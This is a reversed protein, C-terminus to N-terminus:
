KAAAEPAAGITQKAKLAQNADYDKKFDYLPLIIVVLGGIFCWAMFAFIWITFGTSGLIFSGVYMVAPFLGCLFIFLFMAMVVSKLYSQQLYAELQAATSGEEIAPPMDDVLPLQVSLHKFQFNTDPDALSGGIAVLGSFCMSMLNSYLFPNDNNLATIWEGFTSSLGVEYEVMAAVLWTIIGLILGSIAGITCWKGNAKEMLIAMAAPAVAPGVFIGMSCYVFGLGLGFPALISQLFNALFGMFVAFCICFFKMMRLVIGAEGSQKCLVQSQVAFYLMEITVTKQGENNTETFAVLVSKISQREEPQFTPRHGPLIEANELQDLIESVKDPGDLTIPKVSEEAIEKVKVIEKRERARSVDLKGPKGLVVSYFIQRNNMRETKMDYNLYECYVDYTVITAVAIIEASGTSVIAMFLM